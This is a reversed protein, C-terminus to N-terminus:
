EADEKLVDLGDNLFQVFSRGAMSLGQLFILFFGIPIMSKLIYRAPLGGPDPSIEGINWSNLVFNQSAWIAMIAFPLLFLLSGICNVLAQTKPTFNMYIVDVRVHKNHKLTYASAVLFITAFIHWELEQVGVSSMKLMYRTFVDLCVTLVLLLTLWSVAKGVNENLSDVFRVFGLVAKM